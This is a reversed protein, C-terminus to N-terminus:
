TLTSDPRTTNSCVAGNDCSINTPGEVPVGFMCLKYRLAEIMEVANKM